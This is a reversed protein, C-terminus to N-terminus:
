FKVNLRAAIGNDSTGDGFQGTYHLSLGATPNFRAGVGLELVAADGAVPVGGVTFAGGDGFALRSEPTDDGFAHRWGVMGSGTLAVGGVDFGTSGRLGLTSFTTRTTGDQGGLAAAGGEESFADTDLHVHALSAFPDLRTSPALDVRYSAEGFVQATRSDYDASLRDAFGPFGVSRSTEVSNWSYAAGLKLGVPGFETGGYVGLHYSDVDASSTSADVDFSSHGYGALFGLRLAEGVPADAGILLGRSRRDLSAANGDGDTSGWSGYGALWMDLGTAGVPASAASAAESPANGSASTIRSFAANRVHRSEEIVGTKLSAHAEGSLQDFALRANAENSFLIANYLALSASGATQDLSDLASAAEQQNLTQAAQPFLPPAPTPTPPTPPTGGISLTLTVDNAGHALSSGLFASDLTPAAFRGDLIGASLITYTQGDQYSVTPDLAVVQVGAGNLHATGTVNIRDSAGGAEIEVEYTSGSAFTLDGAVDLTGISNGPAITAGNALTTTGVTGNGRVIGGARVDLSGGLTGNVSLAGDVATSGGYGSSNGTLLVIGGGTFLVDGSGAIVGDYTGDYGQDFTFNTGAALALDGTFRDSASTLGGAEVDWGLTSTGALTLQGAGRKVMRGAVPASSSDLSAGSVDGALTAAADETLIVTAANAIPGRISASSGGLTGEVVMTGGAYTNRGSLALTGEGAKVLMGPGSVTGTLGLTEGDEVMFAGGMGDLSVGRGTDFSGTAVLSAEKLVLGNTAASEDGLNDSTSVSLTGGKITTAGTYTNFGSLTLTGDGSKTLGGDAGILDSAKVIAGTLGLETGGYVLFEGGDGGLTVNRGTDFSATTELTGGDLSIVNFPSSAALGLNESASVSLTGGNIKTAGRYTNTGSLTLKGDGTKELTLSNPSWVAPDANDTVVGGFTSDGLASTDVTLTAATASNNSITGSSGTIRGVTANNGNLVLTGGGFDISAGNTTANTAGIQVSGGRLNIQGGTVAHTATANLRSNDHFTQTGGTVTNFSSANLSSADHFDQTGSSFPGSTSDTGNWTQAWATGATLELLGTALLTSALLWQRGGPALRRGHAPIRGPVARELAVPRGAVKKADSMFETERPAGCDRREEATTRTEFDRPYQYLGGSKKGIGLRGNNRGM